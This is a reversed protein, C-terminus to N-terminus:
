LVLPYILGSPRVGFIFQIQNTIIEKSTFIFPRVGGMSAVVALM